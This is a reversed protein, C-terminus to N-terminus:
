FVILAARISMLLLVLTATMFIAFRLLIINITAQVLSHVVRLGVYLWALCINFGADAGLLALTLTVAYFLTPQELLHNYNDAKWRVHAPLQKHFDEAPRQPDLSIKLRSIAPIRTAYLWACMVFTWLVLAMIPALLYSHM